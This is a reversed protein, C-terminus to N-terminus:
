WSDKYECRYTAKKLIKKLGNRRNRWATLLTGGDQAIVLATGVLRTAFAGRRDSLPVDQRRLYCILAGERHYRSAFQYVYEIEDQSLGRQASRLASHLTHQVM